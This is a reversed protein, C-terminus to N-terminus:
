QKYIRQVQTLYDSVLDGFDLPNKSCLPSFGHQVVSQFPDDIRGFFRKDWEAQNIKCLMIVSNDKDQKV